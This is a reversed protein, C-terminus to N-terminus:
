MSATAIVTIVVVIVVFVALKDLDFAGLAAVHDIKRGGELASLDLTGVACVLDLSFLKIYIRRVNLGGM